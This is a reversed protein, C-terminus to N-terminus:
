RGFCLKRISSPTALPQMAKSVFGAGPRSLLPLIAVFDDELFNLMARRDSRTGGRNRSSTRAGRMTRRKRSSSLPTVATSNAISASGNKTSRNPMMSHEIM